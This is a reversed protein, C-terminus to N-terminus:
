RAAAEIEVCTRALTNIVDDIEKTLVDAPLILRIRGPSSSAGAGLLKAGQRWAERIFPDRDPVTFGWM